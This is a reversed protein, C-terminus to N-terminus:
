ARFTLAWSVWSRWDSVASRTASRLDVDAAVPGPQALAPDNPMILVTGGLTPAREARGQVGTLVTCSRSVLALSRTPSALRALEADARLVGADWVAGDAVAMALAGHSRDVLDSGDQGVLRPAGGPLERVGRFVLAVLTTVGGGGRTGM